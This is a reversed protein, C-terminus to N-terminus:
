INVETQIDPYKTNSLKFKVKNKLYIKSIQIYFFYTQKRIESTYM